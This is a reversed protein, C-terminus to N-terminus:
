IPTSDEGETDAIVKPVHVRSISFCFDSLIRTDFLSSM